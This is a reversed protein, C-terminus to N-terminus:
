DRYRVDNAKSESKLLRCKIGNITEELVGCVNENNIGGNSWANSIHYGTFYGGSVSLSEGASEMQVKIVIFLSCAGM